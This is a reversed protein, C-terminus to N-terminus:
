HRGDTKLPGNKLIHLAVARGILADTHNPNIAIAKDYSAVADSHRGLFDLSNGRYYWVDANNPNIAIAKDFSALAESYQRRQFFDFGENYYQVNTKRSFIDFLGM